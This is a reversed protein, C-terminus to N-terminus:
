CAAVLLLRGLLVLCTTTSRIVGVALVLGSMVVGALVAAARAVLGLVAPLCLTATLCV